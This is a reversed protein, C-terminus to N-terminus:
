PEKKKRRKHPNYHPKAESSPGAAAVRRALQAARAQALRSACFGIRREGAYNQCVDDRFANFDSSDRSLEAPADKDRGALARLSDQIARDADARDRSIIKADKELDGVEPGWLGAPNAQCDAASFVCANAQAPVIVGDGVIDFTLPCAPIDAGYRKLGDPEGQLTAAIPKDAVIDIRCQQSPNSVVEGLLTYKVIRLSKDDGRELTLDGNRGNLRLVRGFAPELTVPKAPVRHFHTKPKAIKAPAAVDAPPADGFSAGPLALQAWAAGAGLSFVAALATMRKM